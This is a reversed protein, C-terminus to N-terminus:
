VPDGHAEAGANGFFLDPGIIKVGARKGAALAERVNANNLDQHNTLREDAYVFKWGNPKLVVWSGAPVATDTLHHFSVTRVGLRAALEVFASAEEINRRMLVFTMAIDTDRPFRAVLRQIGALATAFNGGRIDQYTEPTAADLSIMILGMPARALRDVNEQTLLLGNTSFQVLPRKKGKLRDIIEWFPGAMLPEGVGNLHLHDARVMTPWLPELLSM